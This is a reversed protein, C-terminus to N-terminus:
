TYPTPGSSSFDALVRPTTPVEGVTSDVVVQLSGGVTPLYARMADGVARSVFLVALPMQDEILTPDGPQDNRLVVALAGAAKARTAVTGFACPGRDVLV